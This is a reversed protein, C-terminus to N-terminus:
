LTLGLSKLLAILALFTLITYNVVLEQKRYKAVIM